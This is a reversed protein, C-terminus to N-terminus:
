NGRPIVEINNDEGQRPIILVGTKDSICALEPLLPGQHVEQLWGIPGFTSLVVNFHAGHVVRLRFSRRAAVLRHLRNGGLESSFFGDPLSRCEFRSRLGNTTSTRNQQRGVSPVLRLGSRQGENQCMRTNRQEDEPLILLM